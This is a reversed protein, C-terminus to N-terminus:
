WKQCTICTFMKIIYVNKNGFLGHSVTSHWVGSKMMEMEPFFVGYGM